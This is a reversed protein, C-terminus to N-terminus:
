VLFIFNTHLVEGKRPIGNPMICDFASNRDSAVFLLRDGLDFIIACREAKLKRIGPLELQLVTENADRWIFPPLGSPLASNKPLTPPLLASKWDATDGVELRCLQSSRREGIQFGCYGATRFFDASRARIRRSAYLVARARGRWRNNIVIVKILERMPRTGPLTGNMFVLLRQPLERHDAFSGADNQRNSGVCIALYKGNAAVLDVRTFQALVRGVGDAAEPDTQIGRVNIEHGTDIPWIQRTKHLTV